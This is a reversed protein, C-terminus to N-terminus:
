ADLHEVVILGEEQLHELVEVTHKPAPAEPHFTFLYMDRNSREDGEIYKRSREGCVSEDTTAQFEMTMQITM